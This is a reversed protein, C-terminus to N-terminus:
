RVIRFRATQSAGTLGGASPSATLVYRGPKLKHGAVRGTFRASNAGAVGQITFSGRVPVTRTCRSAKANRRTPKVCTGKVHRGPVLRAATFTVAAAGSLTFRLTSGIPAKAISAGSSAARFKRPALGLASLSPAGAPTACNPPTGVQGPPCGPTTCHPPTGTQGAPCTATMTVTTSTSTSAASGAANTATLRCAISTGVDTGRVTYTNGAEGSITAGDALWSIVSTAAADPSTLTPLGCSLTGGPQATGSITAAPSLTPVRMEYAGIDCGGGQPRAFGRQDSGACPAPIANLASSGAKLGLTPTPGGNDRLQVTSNNLPDADAFGAPCGTAQGLAYAINHGGDTFGGACAPFGDNDVISDSVTGTTAYVAGGSGLAGSTTGSGPSNLFGGEITLHDATLGGTAYIAAGNGGNGGDGDLGTSQGSGGLGGTGGGGAGVGSVTVNTITLPGESYIAGGSGGNGGNGGDAGIDMSSSGGKGGHGGFGASNANFTSDSVTLTSGALSAIAGGNGGNGGPLGSTGTSLDLGNAGAGGDGAASNTISVRDLTLTGSNVITGGSLGAQGTGGAAAKGGSMWVDEITVTKGAAVNFIRIQDVPSGSIHTGTFNAAAYNAGQGQITISKNIPIEQGLLVPNVGPDIVVTDGDNANAIVDRLSGAGVNGSQTVHLPSIALASAPAAGLLGVVVSVCAM